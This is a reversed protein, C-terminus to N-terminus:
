ITADIYIAIHPHLFSIYINIRYYKQRDRHQCLLALSILKRTQIIRKKKSTWILSRLQDFATETSRFSNETIKKKLVIVEMNGHNM